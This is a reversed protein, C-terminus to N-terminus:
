SAPPACGGRRAAPARRAGALGQQGAGAGALGPHGEVGNGAGVKNLHVHAHARGTDAVQEVLGFLGHGADDEDVLDVRDAALAAGAEAAAVILALLRQVLQQDLHVAKLGVVADDDHGGGVAGVDQILGQEAGAAKVPLDVDAQGVDLAALLDQLDVGAFLGQGGVDGELHDGLPGRAKGAGVQFVQDVLRGQQGGTAVAFGDGHLVDFLSGHLHHGARLLLAPDDGGLLLLQGGVM